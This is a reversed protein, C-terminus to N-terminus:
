DFWAELGTLEHRRGGITLADIREVLTRPEPSSEWARLRMEDAFRYAMFYDRVYRTVTGRLVDCAIQGPQKSSIQRLEGLATEFAEVNVMPLRRSVVVGIAQDALATL